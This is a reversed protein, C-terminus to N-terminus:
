AEPKQRESKAGRFRIIILVGIGAALLVGASDILVDLIRCARGSVFIQHAEDSIAYLIGTVSAILFKFKANLGPFTALFVTLLAGLVFFESFHAAKRVPIYYKDVVKTKAAEDLRDYHPYTVEAVRVVVGRSVESSKKDEQASFAFIVGMWVLVLCLSVYRIIKTKM